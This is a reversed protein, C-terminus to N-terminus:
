IFRRIQKFFQLERIRVKELYAGLNPASTPVITKKQKKTKKKLVVKNFM